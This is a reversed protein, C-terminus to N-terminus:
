KHVTIPQGNESIYASPHQRERCVETFKAVLPLPNNTIYKWFLQLGNSVFIALAIIYWLSFWTNQTNLNFM